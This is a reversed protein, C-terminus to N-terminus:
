NALLIGRGNLPQVRFIFFFKMMRGIGTELSRDTWSRGVAAYKRENASAVDVPPVYEGRKQRVERRISELFAQGEETPKFVTAM